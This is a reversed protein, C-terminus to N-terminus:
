IPVGIPVPEEPLPDLGADKMARNLSEVPMVGGASPCGMYDFGFATAQGRLIFVLVLSVDTVSVHHRRSLADSLRQAPAGSVRVEVASGPLLKAETIGILRPECFASRYYPEADAKHVGAFALALLGLAVVVWPWYWFKM